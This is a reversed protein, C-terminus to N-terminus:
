RGKLTLWTASEAWPSPLRKTKTAPNVTLRGCPQESARECHLPFFLFSKFFLSLPSNSCSLFQAFATLHQVSSRAFSSLRKTTQVALLPFSFIRKHSKLFFFIRINRLARLLTSDARASIFRPGKLILAEKAPHRCCMCLRIDQHTSCGLPKLTVALPFWRVEVHKTFTGVVACNKNVHKLRPTHWSDTWRPLECPIM